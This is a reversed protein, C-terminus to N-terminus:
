SCFQFFFLTVLSKLHERVKTGHRLEKLHSNPLNLEVLHEAEFSTPLFEFPFGHLQLFMLENSLYALTDCFPVDHLELLRLKTMQSFAKASLPKFLTM